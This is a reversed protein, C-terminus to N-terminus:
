RSSGDSRGGFGFVGPVLSAGIVIGFIHGGGGLNVTGHQSASYPVQSLDRVLGGGAEECCRTLRREM